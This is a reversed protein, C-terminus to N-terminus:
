NQFLDKLKDKVKEEPSKEEPPPEEAPAEGEAPAAAPKKEGGLLKDLLKEKLEDGKKEIEKRLLANVDPKISPSALPGSIKLPIVAKSYDSLEAETVNGAFEPKALVRAQMSYDLSAEVLNVTGNGTLRIFPIEALFDNNAFVGNNVPGSVKISSFETRPPVRAPPAQEGRLLARASRIQHWVDTGNFQGDLLEFSLNGDLDRQIASLTAGAGSLVFSGRISGSVKDNDFMAKALPTLSVGDVRENVSISPVKGSDILDPLSM